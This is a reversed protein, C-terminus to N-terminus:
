AALAPPPVRAPPAPPSTSASPDRPGPVAPRPLAPPASTTLHLRAIHGPWLTIPQGTHVNRCTVGAAAHCTECIRTEADERQMLWDLTHERTVDARSLRRTPM